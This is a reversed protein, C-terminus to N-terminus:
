KWYSQDVSLLILMLGITPLIGLGETILIFGGCYLLYKWGYANLVYM